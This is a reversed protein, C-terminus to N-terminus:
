SVKNHLYGMMKNILDPGRVSAAGTPDIFDGSTPDRMMMANRMFFSTDPEPQPAEAPRAQPLPVQPNPLTPRARPLPVGPIGMFAHDAMPDVAPYTYPAQPAAPPASNDSSIPPSPGGISLQPPLPMASVDPVDVQSSKWLQSAFAGGRSFMRSLLPALRSAQNIIQPYM